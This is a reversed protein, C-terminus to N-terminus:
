IVTPKYPEARIMSKILSYQDYITLISGHNKHPYVGDGSLYRTKGEEYLTVFVTMFHDLSSLPAPFIIKYLLDKKFLRRECHGGLNGENKLLCIETGSINQLEYKEAVMNSIARTISMRKTKVCM